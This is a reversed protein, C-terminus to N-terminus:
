AQQDDERGKEHRDRPEDSDDVKEQPLITPPQRKQLLDVVQNLYGGHGNPFHIGASYPASRDHEFSLCLHCVLPSADKFFELQQSQEEERLFSMQPLAGPSEVTAYTVQLKPTYLQTYPLGNDHFLCRSKLIPDTTGFELLAVQM